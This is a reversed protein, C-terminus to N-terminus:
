DRLSKPLSNSTLIFYVCSMIGRRIDLQIGCLIVDCNTYIWEESDLLILLETVPRIYSTTKGDKSVRVEFKRELNDKGQFTETVHELPWNNRHTEVDKLLVIDGVSLNPQSQHWKKRPRLAHLYERKWTDWFM